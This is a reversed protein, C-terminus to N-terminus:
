RRWAAKMTTTGQKQAVDMDPPAYLTDSAQLRVTMLSEREIADVLQGPIDNEFLTTALVRAPGHRHIVTTSDWFKGLAVRAEGIQEIQTDIKETLAVLNQRQRELAVRKWSNENANDFRLDVQKKQVEMVIRDRRLDQVEADFADYTQDPSFLGAIFALAHAHRRHNDSLQNIKAIIRHAKQIRQENAVFEKDHHHRELRNVEEVMVSRYRRLDARLDNVRQLKELARGYDAVLVVKTMPNGARVNDIETENFAPQTSPRFFEAGGPFLLVEANSLVEARQWKCRLFDKKEAELARNVRRELRKIDKLQRAFHKFDEDNRSAFKGDVKNEFGLWVKQEGITDRWETLMDVLDDGGNNVHVWGQYARGEDQDMLGFMYQGPVLSATAYTMNAGNFPGGWLVVHHPNSGDAQTETTWEEYVIETDSEDVSLGLRPRAEFTASDAYTVSEPPAIFRVSVAAFDPDITPCVQTTACGAGVVIM